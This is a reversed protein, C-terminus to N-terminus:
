YLLKPVDNLSQISEGQWDELGVRYIDEGDEGPVRLQVARLGAQAAGSLERSSGDGIYCCQGPTAKLQDLALLYIRPDPKRMGALCSFVTVDFYPALPTEKWAVTAAFSCDSILGTRYNATKLAALVEVAGPRPLMTLAEYELFVGSADKIDEAPPKIDLERCVKGIQAAPDPLIGLISDEFTACWRNWFRDPPASLLDAIRKITLRYESETFSPVLTGFLDFIVAVYKKNEM